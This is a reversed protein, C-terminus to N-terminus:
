DTWPRAFRFGFSVWAGVVAASVILFSVVVLVVSQFLSFHVAWFAWYLLVFCVWAVTAGMTAVIRRRLGTFLEFRRSHSAIPASFPAASM